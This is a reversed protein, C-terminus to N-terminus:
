HTARPTTTTPTPSPPAAPSRPTHVPDVSSPVSVTTGRGHLYTNSVWRPIRSHAARQVRQLLVRVSRSLFSSPVPGFSLSSVLSSVTFLSHCLSVSFPPGSFSLPQTIAGLSDPIQIQLYRLGVTLGLRPSPSPSLSLAVPGLEPGRVRGVGVCLSASCGAMVIFLEIRGHTVAPNRRATSGRGRRGELFDRVM